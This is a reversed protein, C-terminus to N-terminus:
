PRLGAPPSLKTAVDMRRAIPTNGCCDGWSLPLFFFWYTGAVQFFTHEGRWISALLIGGLALLLLGGVPSKPHRDILYGFVRLGGALILFIPWFRSLYQLATAREPSVFFYVGMGILAIGFLLTALRKLM